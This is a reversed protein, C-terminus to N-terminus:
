CKFIFWNNFQSLASVGEFLLNLIQEKEKETNRKNFKYGGLNRYLSVKSFLIMESYPGAEELWVPFHEALSNIM